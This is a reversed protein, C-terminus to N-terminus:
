IQIREPDNSPESRLLMSAPQCTKKKGNGVGEGVCDRINIIQKNTQQVSLKQNAEGGRRELKRSTKNTQENKKGKKKKILEKLKKRM